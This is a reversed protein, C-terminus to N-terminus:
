KQCVSLTSSASSTRRQTCRRFRRLEFRILVTALLLLVPCVLLVENLLSVVSQDTLVSQLGQGRGDLNAFASDLFDLVRQWSEILLRRRIWPVLERSSMEMLLSLNQQVSKLCELASLTPGIPQPRGFFSWGGLAGGPTGQLYQQLPVSM